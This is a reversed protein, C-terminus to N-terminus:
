FACPAFCAPRRVRASDAPVRQKAWPQIRRSAASKSALAEIAGDLTKVIKETLGFYEAGHIHNILLFSFCRDFLNPWGRLM